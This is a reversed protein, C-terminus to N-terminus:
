GQKGKKRRRWVVFLIVIALAVVAIIAAVAAAGFQVKGSGLAQMTASDFYLTYEILHPESMAITEASVAIEADLKTVPIEFTSNGETDIPDYQTDDVLMYTYNSSSWIISATMAGDAVVLQVPSEINARGSGGSLAVEISYTGDPPTDAALAQVPVLLILVLALILLSKKM